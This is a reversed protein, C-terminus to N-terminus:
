LVVNLDLQQTKKNQKTKKDTVEAPEATYNKLGLTLM